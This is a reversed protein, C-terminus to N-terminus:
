QVTESLWSTLFPKAPDGVSSIDLHEELILEWRSAQSFFTGSRLKRLSIASDIEKHSYLENCGLKEFGDNCISLHDAVFM